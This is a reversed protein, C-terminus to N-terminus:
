SLPCFPFLSSFSTSSRAHLFHRRRKGMVWLFPVSPRSFCSLHVSLRLPLSLAATQIHTHKHSFLHFLSARKLYKKGEERKRQNKTTRKAASRKGRREMGRFGEAILANTNLSKLTYYHSLLLNLSLRRSILIMTKSFREGGKQGDKAGERRVLYVCYWLLDSLLCLVAPLIHFKEIDLVIQLPIASSLCLRGEEEGREM